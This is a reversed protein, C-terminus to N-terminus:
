LSGLVGRRNCLVAALEEELELWAGDQFLQQHRDVNPYHVVLFMIVSIEAGFDAAFAQMKRSYALAEM